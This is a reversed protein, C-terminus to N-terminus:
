LLVLVLNTEGHFSYNGKIAGDALPKFTSETFNSKIKYIIHFPFRFEIM